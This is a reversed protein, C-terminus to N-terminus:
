KNILTNMEQIFADKYGSKRYSDMAAKAKEYTNYKGCSYRYYGDGSVTEVVGDIGKFNSMQIRAKAAKLQITYINKDTLKRGENDPNLLSESANNIEFQNVIYADKFGNNKVYELYKSAEIRNNFIGIVYLSVSDIKILNIVSMGTIKLNNFYGSPLNKRDKMLVISYRFTYSQGLHSPIFTERSIVVGTQSDIIGFTARRNIKRGEPNDTGDEKTNPAIFGSKGYAKKIFRSPSIGAATLNDIVAQARKDALIRNYEISGKIDTYGAVEIKLEPYAALVSKTTKLDSIAQDDLKYSNFEFFINKISLFDGSFVKAPVLSSYLSIYNGTYYLPVNLNITDTKYGDSSVLLQYDGPKIEFVFSGTDTVSISKKQSPNKLDSLLIKIKAPDVAMGDLLKVFGHAITIKDEPNEAVISYINRTQTKEDYFSTIFGPGNNNFIFHINDEKNNFSYPLGVPDTWIGNRNVSRFVDYGGISIHGTSSFLLTKTAPDYFPTEENYPTNIVNGCNIPRNWSGDQAKESSWIDLNGEGEPRNSTFYFSKGDPTIFGDSEWYVTNISGGMSKIKTWTTDTRTSYYLNGDGGDDMFIILMKGDGTISNSYFRDYGGLQGTIDSPRGWTGTKYSCFIRTKGEKKVTFVFVSDNKSIVPNFAGPYDSLWPTFLDTIMTLPKKKMEIAYRCDRIQNDIYEDQTIGFEDFRKKADNFLSIAKLLSDNKQYAVALYLYTDFPAKSGFQLYEKDNNVINSSAKKLFKLADAEKGDINLYCMGLKAAVNSNEPYIDALSQFISAAQDYYEGYDFIIDANQFKRHFERKSLKQSFLPSFCLFSLLFITTKM